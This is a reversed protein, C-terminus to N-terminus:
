KTNRVAYLQTHRVLFLDGFFDPFGPNLLRLLKIVKRNGLLYPHLFPVQGIIAFYPITADSGAIMGHLDSRANLFGLPKHYSISTIVDFAYWHFHQTFDTPKGDVEKLLDLFVKTCDDVHQEYNRVNSM